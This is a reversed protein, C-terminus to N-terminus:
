PEAPGHWLAPYCGSTHGHGDTGIFPDVYKTLDEKGVSVCGEFSITLLRLWSV